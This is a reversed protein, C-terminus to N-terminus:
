EGPTSEAALELQHGLTTWGDRPRRAHLEFYPGPFLTEVLRYFAEPKESHAGTPAVIESQELTEFASRVSKSLLFDRGRGRVGVLCVEHQGRVIRGMGFADKEGDGDCAPCRSEALGDYVRESAGSLPITKQEVYRRSRVLGEGKCRSCLGRKFWVIETKYVFGRTKMLQYALEPFPTSNEDGGAAVRWMFCVADDHLPPLPQRFLRDIPNTNYHKAAGRGAGPLRDDFPWADDTLLVRYRKGEARLRAMYRHQNEEVERDFRQIPHEENTADDEGKSTQQESM